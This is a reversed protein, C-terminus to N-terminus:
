KAGGVCKKLKQLDKERQDLARLTKGADLKLTAKTGDAATVEINVKKGDLHSRADEKVGGYFRQHRSLAGGDKLAQKIQTDTAGQPVTIPEGTDFNLAEDKGLMVAGDKVSVLLTDSPSLGVALPKAPAELPTGELIAQAKAAEKKAVMIGGDMIMTKVIGAAKLTDIIQTQNGKIALTGSPRLEWTPGSAPVGETSPTQPKPTAQAVAAQEPGAPQHGSDKGQNAGDPERRGASADAQVGADPRGATQIRDGTGEAIAAQLASKVADYYAQEPKDATLRSADERIRETDIGRDEALALLAHVEAKTADDAATYGADKLEAESYGTPPSLPDDSEMQAALHDEFRTKGEAEGIRAWGDETYQPTTVSKRILDYAANHLAGQPLYGHEILKETAQEITLGKGKGAFLTRNGVRMNKDFGSDAMEDRSLGGEGAIFAHAPIPVGAPSTNANRLRKAAIEQAALQAATKEALAFGGEHTVVRLHPQLKRQKDAAARTKFPTGGDSMATGDRGFREKLAADPESAAAGDGVAMGSDAPQVPPAASDVAPAPVAQANRATAASAPAPAPTPLEGLPDKLHGSQAWAKFVPLDMPTIAGMGKWDADYNRRYITEAEAKDAAGMVVKHEDFKGTKPDVQDVVFMPGSYDAPTGPKVFVDLKHGDAATTGRFYGYHDALPTEWAKGDASIGRRVSGQPNEVSIDLGGIRVHGVKYNGADKQADTPEPTNNLPSTAAAHMQDHHEDVLIDNGTDLPAATKGELKTIADMTSAPTDGYVSDMAAKMATDGEAGVAGAVTGHPLQTGMGKSALHTTFKDLFAPVEELPLDKAKEQAAAIAKPSLGAHTALDSFGTLMAARAGAEAPKIGDLRFDRYRQQFDPSAHFDKDPAAKAIGALETTVAQATDERDIGKQLLDAVQTDGGDRLRKVREVLFGKSRALDAATQETHGQTHLSSMSGAAIPAVIAGMVGQKVASNLDPAKGEGIDQGVQQSFNEGFEQVPEKILATKLADRAGALKQGAGARAIMGEAGGGTAKGIAHSGIGAILAGTYKGGLGADTDNFTQGANMLDNGAQSIATARMPTLAIGLVKAAKVLHLPLLMSGMATGAQTGTLTPHSLLYSAVDSASASDDKLLRSLERNEDLSTASGINKDISKQATELVKKAGPGLNGATLLSAVDAYSKAAGVPVGAVTAAADRAYDVLNRDQPGNAIFNRAAGIQPAMLRPDGPLASGEANARNSLRQAEAPDFAPEPMDLGELVSAPRTPQAMIEAGGSGMPDGTVIPQAEPVPPRELPPQVAGRGAGGESPKMGAPLDRRAAPTDEEWFADAKVPTDASWFEDKAM